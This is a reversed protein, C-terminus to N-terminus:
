LLRIILRNRYYVLELENVKEYVFSFDNRVKVINYIYKFFFVFFLLYFVNNM